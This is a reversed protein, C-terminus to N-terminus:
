ALLTVYVARAGISAHHFCMQNALITKGAGPPGQLLYVGSSLLGGELVDDLGPVGTARREFAKPQETV